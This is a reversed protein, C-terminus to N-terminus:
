HKGLKVAKLWCRRHKRINGGVERDEGAVDTAQEESKEAVGSNREEIDSTM